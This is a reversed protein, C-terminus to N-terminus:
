PLEHGVKAPAHKPPPLLTSLAVDHSRVSLQVIGGTLETRTYAWGPKEELDGGIRAAALLNQATELAAARIEQKMEYRRQIAAGVAVLAILSLAAIAGACDLMLSGKRTMM